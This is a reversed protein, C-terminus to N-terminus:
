AGPTLRAGGGTEPGAHRANAVADTYLETTLDGEDIGLGALVRRIGALAAPVDVEEPVLTEVELFTGDIEPVRVLTALMARGYAEFAHNRCLKRFAIVPEYGLGRLVAGAAEADGVPTEHEAKAGSAEDVVAGKFTLM